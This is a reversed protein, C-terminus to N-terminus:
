KPLDPLLAKPADPFKEKAAEMVSIDGAFGGHAVVWAGNVRRLLAFFDLELDMAVDGSPPKGDTPAVHGAFTAWDGSVKVEGTFTVRKGVQKSVPGRMAEMIVKREPSGPKPEHVDAARAIWAVALLVVFFRLLKM